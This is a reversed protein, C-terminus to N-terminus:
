MQYLSFPVPCPGLGSAGRRATVLHLLGGMLLWYVLKTNNSMASYNGKSDLPNILKYSL